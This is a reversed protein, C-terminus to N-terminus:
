RAWMDAIWTVAYQYGNISTALHNFVFSRLRKM